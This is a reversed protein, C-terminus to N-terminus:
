DEPGLLVENKEDDFGSKLCGLDRLHQVVEALPESNPHKLEERLDYFDSALVDEPGATPESLTSELDEWLTEGASELEPQM